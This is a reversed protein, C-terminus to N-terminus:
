LLTRVHKSTPKAPFRDTQDGWAHWGPRAQRAFLELYPGAVLEEVRTFIEDPKRSHERRPMNIIERVGGSKRRPAGRTFLLAIETEKRTWRGMGMRTADDDEYDEPEISKKVKRWTFAHTKFVFGWAKGLDLAQDLHSSIVWMVLACDKAAIDSVPLAKLADLDMTDYHQVDGRQPLGKSAYNVTQWPPDALIAGFLGAPFPTM